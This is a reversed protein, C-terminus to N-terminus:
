HKVKKVEVRAIPTGKPLLIGPFYNSVEGQQMYNMLERHAAEDVWQAVIEFSFGVDQEQGIFVNQMWDGNAQLNIEGGQPWWVSLGRRHAFVWLHRDPIRRGNGQITVIRGVGEGETPSTVRLERHANRDIFDLLQNSAGARILRRTIDATLQFDVKYREIQKIIEEEGVSSELLKVIQDVSFQQQAYVDHLTAAVWFTLLTVIVLYRSVSLTKRINNM